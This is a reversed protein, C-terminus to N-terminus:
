AQKLASVPVHSNVHVTLDMVHNAVASYNQALAFYGAEDGFQGPTTSM